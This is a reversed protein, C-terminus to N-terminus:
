DRDLPELRQWMLRVGEYEPDDNRLRFELPSLHYLETALQLGERPLLPPMPNREEWENFKKLGDLYARLEDKTM